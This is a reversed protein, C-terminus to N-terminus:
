RNSRGNLHVVVEIRLHRELNEQSRHKRALGGANQANNGSISSEISWHEHDFVCIIYSVTLRLNRRVVVLASRANRYAVQIVNRQLIDKPELDNDHVFCLEELVKNGKHFPHDIRVLPMEVEHSQITIGVTTREMAVQELANRECIRHFLESGKTM